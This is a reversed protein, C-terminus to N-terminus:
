VIREMIKQETHRNSVHKGLAKSFYGNVGHKGTGSWSSHSNPATLVRYLDGGLTSPLFQNLAINVTNIRIALGLAPPAMGSPMFNSVFWRWRIAAPIVLVALSIICFILPLINTKALLQLTSQHNINLFVWVILSISVVIQTCAMLWSKVPKGMIM